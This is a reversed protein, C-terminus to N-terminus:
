KKRGEKQYSLTLDSKLIKIGLCQKSRPCIQKHIETKIHYDHNAGM